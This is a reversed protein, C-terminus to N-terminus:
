PYRQLEKEIRSKEHKDRFCPDQEGPYACDPEYTDGFLLQLFIKPPRDTHLHFTRITDSAFTLPM